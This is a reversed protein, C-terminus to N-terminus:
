LQFELLSVSLQNLLLVFSCRGLVWNTQGGSRSRASRSSRAMRRSSLLLLLLLWLWLRLLHWIALFREVVVQRLRQSLLWSQRLWSASVLQRWRRRLQGRAVIWRRITNWGWFVLRLLKGWHM